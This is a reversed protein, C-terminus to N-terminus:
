PGPTSGEKWFHREGIKVSLHEVHRYLNEMVVEKQFEQSLMSRNAVRPGM